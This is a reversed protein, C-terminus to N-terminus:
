VDTRCHYRELNQNLNEELFHPREILRCFPLLTQANLESGDTQVRLMIIIM